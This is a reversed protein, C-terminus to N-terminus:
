GVRRAGAPDAGEDTMRLPVSRPNRGGARRHGESRGIAGLRENTTAKLSVRDSPFTSCARSRRECALRYASIKPTEAILTADVNTITFGKRDRDARVHERDRRQCYRRNLTARRFIIALTAMPSPESCPMPSRMSFSMPMPTVMWVRADLPFRVGASSSRVVAAFRHIDYGIGTRIDIM